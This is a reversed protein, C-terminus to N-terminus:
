KKGTKTSERGTIISQVGILFLLTVTIFVYLLPRNTKVLPRNPFSATNLLRLSAQTIYGDANTFQVAPTVSVVKSNFNQVLKADHFVKGEGLDWTITGQSNPPDVVAELTLPQTFDGEPNRSQPFANNLRITIKPLSYSEQPVSHVMVSGLPAYETDHTVNKTLLKVVYSGNRVFVHSATVGEASQGDGFEWRFVRDESKGGLGLINQPLVEFITAKNTLTIKAAVDDPIIFSHLLGTQAPNFVVAQNNVKIYPPENEKHAFSISPSIFSAALFLIFLRIM